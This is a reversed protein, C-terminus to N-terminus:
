NANLWKSFRQHTLTHKPKAPQTQTSKTTQIPIRHRRRAPRSNRPHRTRSGIVVNPNLLTKLKVPQLNLDAIRLLTRM